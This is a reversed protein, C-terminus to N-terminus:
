PLASADFRLFVGFKQAEPKTEDAYARVKLGSVTWPEGSKMNITWADVFQARHAHFVVYDGTDADYVKPCYVMYFRNNNIGGIGAKEFGSGVTPISLNLMHRLTTVPFLSLITVNFEVYDRRQIMGKDGITDCRIANMTVGETLSVDQVCGLAFAPYTSTGSMNWYYGESDPNNLPNANYDQFYIYPAGELYIEEQSDVNGLPTGTSLGM